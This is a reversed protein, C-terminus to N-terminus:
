QKKIKKDQLLLNYLTASIHVINRQDITKNAKYQELQNKTRYNTEYKYSM